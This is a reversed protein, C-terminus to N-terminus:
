YVFSSVLPSSSSGPAGVVKEYPQSHTLPASDLGASLWLGVASGGVGTIPLLGHVVRDPRTTFGGTLSSTHVLQVIFM